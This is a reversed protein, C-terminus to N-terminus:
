ISTPRGCHVMAKIREQELWAVYNFFNKVRKM